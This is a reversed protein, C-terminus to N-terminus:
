ISLSLLAFFQAPLNHDEVFYLTKLDPAETFFLETLCFERQLSQENSHPVVRLIVEALVRTKQSHRRTLFPERSFLQRSLAPKEVFFQRVLVAIKRLFQRALGCNKKLPFGILGLTELFSPEVLVPLDRSHLTLSGPEEVFNLKLLGPAIKLSRMELVLVEKSFAEDLGPLGMSYQAESGPMELLYLEVLSPVVLSSQEWRAVPHLSAPLAFCREMKFFPRVSTLRIFSPVDPLTVRPSVSFNKCNRAVCVACVPNPWCM